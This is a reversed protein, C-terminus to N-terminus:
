HKDLPRKKAKSPQYQTLEKFNKSARHFFFDHFNELTWQAQQRFRYVLLVPARWALVCSLHFSM